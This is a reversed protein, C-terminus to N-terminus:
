ATQGGTAPAPQTTQQQVAPQEPQPAAQPPPAQPGQPDAPKDVVPPAAEQDGQPAKLADVILEGPGANRIFDAREKAARVAEEDPTATLHDAHPNVHPDRSSAVREAEEKSWETYDVTEAAVDLLPHSSAGILADPDTTEFSDGAGLDFESAGFSFHIKGQVGNALDNLSVKAM